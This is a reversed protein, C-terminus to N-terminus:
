SVGGPSVAHVGQIRTTRLMLFNAEGFAGGTLGTGGHTPLYPRFASHSDNVNLVGCGTVEEVVRDVVRQTGTWFSNRLGYRNGAVFALVEDLMDAGRTPVVVPLLPSFTEDRVANVTAARALGDIRLVTPEVFLGTDSPKGDVELRRAGHVVTAGRDVADTIDAFFQGAGLVPTLVVGPEDPFGPRTDAALCALRDILEDAIDPHAIVQNPVNCIQGSLRFNEAISAVAGDLDADHWVVLCDNGALELIPKKGAAVAEQEFALGKASGGVFVIDDVNPDALWDATMPPGCVVNLTGPPAGLEDLLPVVVERLTYMTALPVGRPARVVVTNGSLLATIGFLANALAANQPPNVCVVGDPVRRVVSRARGTEHVFELQDACWGLTERSFDTHRYEELMPGAIDHPLGEAVLLETIRDRHRSLGEGIRVGLEVRDAVPVRAWGPRARAAAEVAARGMAPDALACAGALAGGAAEPERTGLDLDRKLALAGFTDELVARVSITHVYRGDAPEVDRGGIYAPFRSTM